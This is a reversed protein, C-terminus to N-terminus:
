LVNNSCYSLCSSSSTYPLGMSRYISRFLDSIDKMNYDISYIALNKFFICLGALVTM